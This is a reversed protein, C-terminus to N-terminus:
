PSKSLNQVKKRKYLHFRFNPTLPTIISSSSPSIISFSFDHQWIIQPRM